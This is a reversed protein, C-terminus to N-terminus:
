KLSFIQQSPIPKLKTSSPTKFYVDGDNWLQPWGGEINNLQIIKIPHLGAELAIKSDNRSYKKVGKEIIL